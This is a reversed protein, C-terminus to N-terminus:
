AVIFSGATWGYIKQLTRATNLLKSGEIESRHPRHIIAPGGEMSSPPIFAIRSGARPTVSFGLDVMASEFDTWAVSVRAQSRSFLTTLISATTGKVKYLRVPESAVVQPTELTGMIAYISTGTPHVRDKTRQHILEADDSPLPGTPLPVYTTKKASEDLKPKAEACMKELDKMSDQVINEYLSGLKSGTDATIFDNLAALANNSVQPELLNDMPSLHDGFDAKSKLDSM